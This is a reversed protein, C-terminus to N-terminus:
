VQLRSVQVAKSKGGDMCKELAELEAKAEERAEKRDEGRQTQEEAWRKQRYQEKAERAQLYWRCAHFRMGINATLDSTLLIVHTYFMEAKTPDRLWKEFLHGLKSACIAECETDIGTATSM